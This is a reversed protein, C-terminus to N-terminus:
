DPPIRKTLYDDNYILSRQGCAVKRLIYDTISLIPKWLTWPKRIKKRKGRRRKRRKKENM